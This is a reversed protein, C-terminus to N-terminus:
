LCQLTLLINGNEEEHILSGNYRSFKKKRVNNNNYQRMARHHVFDEM